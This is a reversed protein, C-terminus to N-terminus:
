KFMDKMRMIVELTRGDSKDCDKFTQWGLCQLTEFIKETLIGDYNITEFEKKFLRLQKEKFIEDQKQKETM